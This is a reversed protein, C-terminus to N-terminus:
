IPMGMPHTWMGEGAKFSVSEPRMYVKVPKGNLDAESLMEMLLLVEDNSLEIMMEFRWTQTTM